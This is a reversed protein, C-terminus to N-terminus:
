RIPAFAPCYASLLPLRVAGAGPPALWQPACLDLPRHAISSPLV